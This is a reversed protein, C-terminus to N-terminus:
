IKPGLLSEFSLSSNSAHTALVVTTQRQRLLGDRGFVGNFVARMTTADLGSLVDDFIATSKAAYLARAIAQSPAPTLVESIGLEDVTQDSQSSYPDSVVRQKQGGSLTIGNSGILTQDGSSFQVLDDELACARLVASYWARDFIEFGLVNQRVTANRLWPTQECFSTDRAMAAVSVSGYMNPVEGLMGKLLTSKGSAVPGVIMTLQSCQLNMSIRRLVPPGDETWSFSADRLHFADWSQYLPPLPKAARKVKEKFDPGLYDLLGLITERLSFNTIPVPPLFPGRRRNDVRSESVLFAQIRGLCAFAAIISPISQFLQTFQSALLMLISLSTFM